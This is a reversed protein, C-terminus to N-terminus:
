EPVSQAWNMLERRLNNAQIPYAGELIMKRAQEKEGIEALQMIAAAATHFAAHVKRTNEYNISYKLEAPFDSSYLWQGFECMQEDAILCSPPECIGTDIAQRLMEKCCVHKSLADFLLSQIKM